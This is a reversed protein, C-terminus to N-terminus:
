SKNKQSKIKIKIMKYFISNNEIKRWIKNKLKIKLNKIIKNKLGKILNIKRKLKV